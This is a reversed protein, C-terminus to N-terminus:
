RNGYERPPVTRLYLYLAKLEVDSMQRLLRIPMATSDIPTGGPRRGDRLARVFDTESWRGIGAPTINAAPRWEPPAGPIKGGSFGEGHCGTCGSALYKGYAATPEAVLSREHAESHAIAEAAVIKAQGAVYLARLMPGAYTSPAQVKVAPVNRAYAIIDALDEDTLVSYEQSPMFLLPKGDRRLGHRVAREWDRPELQRGRGGLTLNPGALRGIM